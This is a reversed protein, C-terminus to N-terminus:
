EKKIRSYGLREIFAFRIITVENKLVGWHGGVAKWILASNWWVAGLANQPPSQGPQRTGWWKGGADEDRTMPIYRYKGSFVGAGFKDVTRLLLGPVLCDNM